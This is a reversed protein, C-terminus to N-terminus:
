HAQMPQKDWFVQHAHTLFAVLWLGQTEKQCVAKPPLYGASLVGIEEEEEENKKM